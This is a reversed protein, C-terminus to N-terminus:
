DKIRLEPLVLLPLPSQVHEAIFRVDELRPVFIFGDQKSLGQLPFDHPLRWEREHKWSSKHPEHRQYRFRDEAKLRQFDQEKAYIAPKAGCGQVLKKRVALGYPEFTWRILAPNWQRLTQLQWPPVSTWSVVAQEGRILKFSARIRQELLIRALTHLATHACFPENYFLSLLYNQYSQGPWPGPCSRTYHYLFDHRNKIRQSSLINAHPSGAPTTCVRAVVSADDAPPDPLIQGDPHSKVLEFNASRRAATDCPRSVLLTRPSRAYQAQLIHHLNGGRRIDLVWHRDALCALLRDRCIMRSTKSCRAGLGQCTLATLTELREGTPHYLPHAALQELSFPLALLVSRQVSLAYATVLDYTITGVSGAIGTNPSCLRPLWYRLAVLWPASPDILKSKRSNFVASWRRELNSEGIGFFVRPCTKESPTKHKWRAIWEGRQLRQDAAQHAWALRKCRRSEIGLAQYLWLNFSKEDSTNNDLCRAVLSHYDPGDLKGAAALYADLTLVRRTATKPIVHLVSSLM